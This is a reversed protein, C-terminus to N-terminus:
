ECKSASIMQARNPTNEKGIFTYTGISLTFNEKNVEIGDCIITKNQNFKLVADLMKQTKADNYKNFAIAFLVIFLVVGTVVTKQSRTLETFYHMALFFLGVVVLGAIYAM